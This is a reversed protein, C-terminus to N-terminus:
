SDRSPGGVLKYDTSACEEGCRNALNDCANRNKSDPCHDRYAGSLEPWVAYKEGPKAQVDPLSEKLQEIVNQAANWRNEDDHVPYGIAEFTMWRSQSGINAPDM